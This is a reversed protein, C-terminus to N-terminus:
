HKVSHRLVMMKSFLLGLSMKIFLFFIFYQSCVCKFFFTTHVNGLTTCLNSVARAANVAINKSPDKLLPFMMMVGDEEIFAPIFDDITLINAIIYTLFEKAQPNKTQRFGELVTVIDDNECFEKITKEKVLLNLLCKICQLWLPSDVEAMSM